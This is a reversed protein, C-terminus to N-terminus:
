IHKVVRPLEVEEAREQEATRVLGTEVRPSCMIRLGRDARRTGRSNVRAGGRGCGVEGIRAKLLIERAHSLTATHWNLAAPVWRPFKVAFLLSGNTEPYIMKM